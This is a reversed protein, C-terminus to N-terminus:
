IKSKNSRDSKNIEVNIKDALFYNEYLEKFKNYYEEPDRFGNKSFDKFAERYPKIILDEIKKKCEKIDAPELKYIYELGNGDFYIFEFDNGWVGLTCSILSKASHNLFYENLWRLKPWQEINKEMYRFIEEDGSWGRTNLIASIILINETIEPIEKEEKFGYSITNHNSGFENEEAFNCIVRYTNKVTEYRLKKTYKLDM